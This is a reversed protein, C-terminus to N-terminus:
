EDERNDLIEGLEGGSHEGLLLTSQRCTALLSVAGREDMLKTMQTRRRCHMSKHVILTLVKRKETNKSKHM